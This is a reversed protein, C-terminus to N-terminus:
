QNICIRICYCFSLCMYAERQLEVTLFTPPKKLSFLGKSEKIIEGGAWLSCLAHRDKSIIKMTNNQMANGSSLILTQLLLLINCLIQSQDEDQLALFLDRWSKRWTETMMIFFNSIPSSSPPLCYWHPFNQLQNWFVFIQEHLPVHLFCPCPNAAVVTISLPRM